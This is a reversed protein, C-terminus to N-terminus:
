EINLISDFGTIEFIEAVTECVNIVKMTGTKNMKKQAALLVRLGSSSIYDLKQLDFVLETVGDIEDGINKELNPATVTDLRGELAITLQNGNKTNTITM